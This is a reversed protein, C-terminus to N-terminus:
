ANNNHLRRGAVVHGLEDDLEEVADRVGDVIVRDDALLEFADEQGVVAHRQGLLDDGGAVEALLDRGGASLGRSSAVHFEHNTRSSRM